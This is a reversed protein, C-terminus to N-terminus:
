READWAQEEGMDFLPSSALVYPANLDVPVPVLILAQLRKLGSHKSRETKVDQQRVQMAM